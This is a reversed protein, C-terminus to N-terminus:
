LTLMKVEDDLGQETVCVNVITQAVHNGFRGQTSYDDAGMMSPNVVVKTSMQMETYHNHTHGLFVYDIPKRLLNSIKSVNNKKDFDGHAFVVNTGNVEAEIFGDIDEYISINEFEALRLELHWAILKEFNEDMSATANKDASVRGHNGIVNYFEVKEVRRAVSSVLQALAESAIKIQKVVHEEAQIRSSVHIIGSIMDGLNAIHVRKTPNKDLYLHIKKILTDLRSLFIDIDYQNFQGYHTNGVHWDSLLIVIENEEKQNEDVEIFDYAAPLSQIEEILVDRLHEFRGQERILKNYERKQDRMRVKAKESEIRLMEFNDLIHANYGEADDFKKTVYESFYNQWAQYIKRWRSEDYEVDDEKNLLEAVEQNSLGYQARNEYLRIMYDILEEHRKRIIELAM